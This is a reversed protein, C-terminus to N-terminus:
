HCMLNSYIHCDKPPKVVLWGQARLEDLGGFKEKFIAAIGKSMHLDQSVCHALSYNGPCDFLDGKVETIQVMTPQKPFFALFYIQLFSRCM